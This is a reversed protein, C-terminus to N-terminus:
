KIKVVVMTMDVRQQNEGRFDHVQRFVQEIIAQAPEARYQLIIDFVRQEGFFENDPACCETIGDTFVTYIDGAELRLPGHTQFGHSKRPRIGLPLDESRLDHKVDGNSDISYARHGGSAGPTAIGGPRAAGELSM